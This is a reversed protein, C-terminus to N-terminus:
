IFMKFWTPKGLYIFQFNANKGYSQGLICADKILLLYGM